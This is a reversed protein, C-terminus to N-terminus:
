MVVITTHTLIAHKTNQWGFIHLVFKFLRRGDSMGPVCSSNYLCSCFGPCVLWVRAEDTAVRLCVRFSSSFHPFCFLFGMCM